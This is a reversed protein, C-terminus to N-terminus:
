VQRATMTGYSSAHDIKDNVESIGTQGEHGLIGAPQDESDWVENWPTLQGDAYVASDDYFASSNMLDIFTDLM